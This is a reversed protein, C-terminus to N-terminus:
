RYLGRNSFFRLSESILLDRGKISSVIEIPFGFAAVKYSGFDVQVAAAMGSDNYKMYINSGLKYATLADPSEVCYSYPNPTIPFDLTGSSGNITSIRGSRSGHERRLSFGLVDQVFKETDQGDDVAEKAIYAGSILISKGQSTVHSIAKKFDTTYIGGRVPTRTATQVKCEKGCIIDLAYSDQPLDYDLEFAQSSCSDFAYGSDMIAKGHLAPYDFTNGAIVVNAYDEYCSGFAIEEGGKYEISRNYEFQDGVFSWDRIYPVGSDNKNDFGAQMPDDFWKPASIRNFANVVTVKAANGGQPVGVSLIESPFSHGGDNAAIVRYSVLEGEKVPMEISYYGHQLEPRIETGIDWGKGQLRTQVIFRDPTATSELSDKREQWRLLVSGYRGDAPNRLLRASFACVPLPQVVYQCGYHMSMYKLMAKYVARSACFRFMPDLGFKMDEFNQHSLLELLVAPVGTTRSESYSKNWIDRITWLSDWQRGLDNSLQSLIQETLERSTARSRGNPLTTKRDARLTYIGLTGIIESDPTVGADTHWAFSFDVPVKLGKKASPNAWSGGSLYQVWSGRSMLDDRYDDDFENQSWIDEPVGSWQMFYRAGEAFRPMGSTVSSLSDKHSRAINGMGGGIKVADAIVTGETKSLNSLSVVPHEGGELGFTGLYVWGGGMRQNVSLEVPGGATHVTYRADSTNKPNASYSVYVAYEDSQPITGIWSVPSENGKKIANTHLHSGMEFPNDTGTYVAKADAFGGAAKKWKGPAEVRGHIRGSLTEGPDNDIIIEVDHWDRERPLLVNAGANELMPVLFPVVFSQTFLDETTQFISPRQWKWQQEEIKYYMGHSQWMAIHRGQMGKPASIGRNVLQPGKLDKVKYRSPRPKGDDYIQPLVAKKVNKSQAQVCFGTAMLAMAACCLFRYVSRM